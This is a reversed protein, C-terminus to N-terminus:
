NPKQFVDYLKFQVTFPNLVLSYETLEHTKEHEAFDIFNIVVNQANGDPLIYFWVKASDLEDSLLANQNNIYVAKIKLNHDWNLSTDNYDVKLPIYQDQDLNDKQDSLEELSFKSLKLDLVVRNIKGSAIANYQATAVLLNLQDIQAQRVQSLDDGRFNPLIIIAMVGILAIAIVLEIFTFGSKLNRIYVNMKQVTQVM